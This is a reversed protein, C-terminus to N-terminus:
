YNRHRICGFLYCDGLFRPCFDIPPRYGEKVKNFLHIHQKIKDTYHKTTNKHDEESDYGEEDFYTLLNEKELIAVRQVEEAEELKGCQLLSYQYQSIWEPSKMYRIEIGLAGKFMENAMSYNHIEYYIDAIELFGVDIYIPNKGTDLFAKLYVELEEAVKESEKIKDTQALSVGYSLLPELSDQNNEVGEKYAEQFWGAAEQIKEQRYLSIGLNNLTAFTPKFSIAKKFAEESKQYLELDLYAEGLLGYPLRSNPNMKIVRELLEVAKQHDEYEYQYFYALNNLSKIDPNIDVARQFMKLSLDIDHMELAIIGCLNILEIDKPNRKVKKRLKYILRKGIKRYSRWDDPNKKVSSEFKEIHAELKM